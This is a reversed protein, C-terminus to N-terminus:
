KKGHFVLSLIYLIFGLFLTTEIGFSIGTSVKVFELIGWAVASWFMWFLGAVVLSLSALILTLFHSQKKM